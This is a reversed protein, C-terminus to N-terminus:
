APASSAAPAEAGGWPDQKAIDRVEDRTLPRAGPAVPEGSGFGDELDEPTVVYGTGEGVYEWAVVGGLEVLHPCTQVALLICRPHGGPGATSDQGGM